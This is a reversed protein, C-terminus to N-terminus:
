SELIKKDNEEVKQQEEQENKCDACKCPTFANNALGLRYHDEAWKVIDKADPFRELAYDKFEHLLISLVMLHYNAFNDIAILDKEDLDKMDKRAAMGKHVDMIQSMITQIAHNASKHLNNEM